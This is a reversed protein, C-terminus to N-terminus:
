LPLENLYITIKMAQSKWDKKKTYLENSPGLIGIVFGNEDLKIEAEKHGEEYYPCEVAVPIRM